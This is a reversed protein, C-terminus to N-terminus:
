LAVAGCTHALEFVLAEQRWSHHVEERQQPPVVAGLLLNVRNTHPPPIHTFPPIYTFPPIHTFPPPPPPRM